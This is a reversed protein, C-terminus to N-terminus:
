AARENAPFVDPKTTALVRVRAEAGTAEDQALLLGGPVYVKRQITALGVARDGGLRVASGMKGARKGEETRLQWGPQPDGEEVTVWCLHRRLQGRYTMIAIAEQGVYCGKRYSVTDRLGVEIPLSGDEIDRGLLPVGALTRLADQVAHCGIEAGAATLQAVLAPVEQRPLVFWREVLAQGGLPLDGRAADVPASLWTQAHLGPLGADTLREAPAAPMRLTAFVPSDAPGVLTVAAFEPLLALEVEDMIVYRDLHARLFEAKAFDTWLVLREAERVVSLVALIKGQADCLCAPAVGGEPLAAIDQTLMAQLYKIRDRGTVEVAQLDDRGFIAARNQAAHLIALDREDLIRM